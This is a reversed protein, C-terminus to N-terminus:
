AGSEMVVPLRVLVSTGGASSRVDCTGGLEAAREAISRLGVGKRGDARFGRGDDTIELLDRGDLQLVVRCESAGAHKRTNTVAEQVIRLAALEVAAPLELRNEPADVVVNPGGGDSPRAGRWGVGCDTPRLVSGVVVDQTM